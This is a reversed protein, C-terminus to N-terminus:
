LDGYPFGEPSLEPAEGGPPVTKFGAMAAAAALLGMLVVAAGLVPGKHRM